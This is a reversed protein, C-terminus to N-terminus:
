VTVEPFCRAMERKIESVVGDRVLGGAAYTDRENVTNAASPADNLRRTVEEADTLRVPGKTVDRKLREWAMQFSACWLASKGEPIPTDLTPLVVTGEPRVERLPELPTNSDSSETWRWWLWGVVAITLLILGVSLFTRHRM